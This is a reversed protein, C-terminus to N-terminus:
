DSTFVQTVRLYDKIISLSSTMTIRVKPEVKSLSKIAASTCSEVSTGFPEVLEALYQLPPVLM